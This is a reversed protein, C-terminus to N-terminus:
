QAPQADAAAPAPSQDSAPEPASTSSDAAPASEEVITTEATVPAVDDSAPDTTGLEPVSAPPTNLSTDVVEPTAVAEETTTSVISPIEPQAATDETTTSTVEPVAEAPETAASATVPASAAVAPVYFTISFKKTDHYGKTPVSDANWGKYIMDVTCSTNAFSSGPPLSFTLAWSGSQTSTATELSAIPGDYPFPFTGLAHIANCFDADGGTVEATVFYQIPESDENPIMFPVLLADGNSLNIQASTSSAVEVDFGLPDAQLFSGLAQEVDSFYSVTSGINSLGFSVAIALVGVGLMRMGSHLFDKKSAECFDMEPLIEAPNKRIVGDFSRIRNNLKKQQM